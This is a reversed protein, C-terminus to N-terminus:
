KKDFILMLGFYGREIRRPRRLGSLGRGKKSLKRDTRVCLIGDPTDRMSM